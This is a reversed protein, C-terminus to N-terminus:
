IGYSRPWPKVADRKEMFCYVLSRECKFLIVLLPFSTLHVLINLVVQLNKIFVYFFTFDGGSQPVLRISKVLGEVDILAKAKSPVTKM